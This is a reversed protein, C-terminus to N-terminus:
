KKVAEDIADAITSAMEYVISLRTNQLVYFEMFGSVNVIGTINADGVAPLDKKMAAGPQLSGEEVKFTGISSARGLCADVALIWAGSHTAHIKELTEVLNMAHVPEHLTGYVNKLGAGQLRMGVLPGFSDGTSRDTGICVIVLEKNGKKHLISQLKKTLDTTINEDKYHLKKGFLSEIQKIM